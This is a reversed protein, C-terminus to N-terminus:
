KSSNKRKKKLKKKQVSFENEVGGGELKPHYCSKSNDKKCKILRFHVWYWMIQATLTMIQLYMTSPLPPPSLDGGGDGVKKAFNPVPNAGELRQCKISQVQLFILDRSSHEYHLPWNFSLAIYVKFILRLETYNQHLYIPFLSKM